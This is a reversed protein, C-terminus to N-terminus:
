CYISRCTGRRGEGERNRNHNVKREIANSYCGQFIIFSFLLHIRPGLTFSTSSFFSDTNSVTCYLVTCYLVDQCSMVYCLKIHCSVATTDCRAYYFHFDIFSSLSVIASHYSQLFTKIFLKLVSHRVEKPSQTIVLCIPYSLIPCLLIHCSMMHCSIVRCPIVHCSIIPYSLIHYSITPYPLIHCSVVHYSLVNNSMVLYSM